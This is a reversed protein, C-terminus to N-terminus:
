KDLIGLHKSIEINSMFAVIGNCWPTDTFKIHVISRRADLYEIEDGKNKFMGLNIFYDGGVFLAQACFEIVFVENEKVNMPMAHQMKTNTGYVNINDKTVIGFGFHVGEINEKFFATLSIKFKEGYKITIPNLEDNVVVNYDVIFGRNDCIRKEDSNYNPKEKCRDKFVSKTIEGELFYKDEVYSVVNSDNTKEKKSHNSINKNANGYLIKQYLNAASALDGKFLMKSEDLVIGSDCFRLITEIDHSVVIVTKGKDLYEEFKNFCKHQFKADGVALAEDVLIIDPDLSISAAFALRVFMGSSYTGVPQYFFEGIDAFSEIEPLREIMDKESVGQIVGNLIANDRGSFLPNFGAGLELLASVKGDVYVSGSSPQMVSAIIQLLTSKGSGNRGLIGVAEGKKVEFSVQKLACYERHYKTRLPHIFEKIREKNSTYLKFNKSIENISIAIDNKYSNNM